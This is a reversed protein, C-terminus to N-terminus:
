PKSGCTKKELESVQGYGFYWILGLESKKLAMENRGVMILGM